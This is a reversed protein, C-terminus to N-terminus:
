GGVGAIEVKHPVSLHRNLTASLRYVTQEAAEMALRVSERTGSLVLVPPVMENSRQFILYHSQLKDHTVVLLYHDHNAVLRRDAEYRWVDSAM